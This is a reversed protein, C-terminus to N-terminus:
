ADVVAEHFAPALFLFLRSAVCRLAGVPFPERLETLTRDIERAPKLLSEQGRPFLRVCLRRSASLINLTTPAFRLTGRPPHAARMECIEPSTCTASLGDPIPM